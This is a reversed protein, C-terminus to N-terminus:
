GGVKLLIFGKIAAAGGGAKAQNAVWDSTKVKAESWFPQELLVASAFYEKQVRAKAINEAINEAKGENMAREKEIATQKEVEEAPVEDKQLFSPPFAVSQIAVQNGIEAANSSDGEVLILSASKGTHHNYAGVSGPSPVGVVVGKRLQINERIKAVAEELIAAITRGGVVTEATVEVVEGPAAAAEAVLTDVLDQVMGKFEANQSVFDTECEIVVGAAKAGDASLAVRALGESTDRGARKQAAAKGKKRLIEQALDIDGDAEVLAQKCEMIPADTLDRLKKVDAATVAM